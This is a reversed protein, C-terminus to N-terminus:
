QCVHGRADVSRGRIQVRLTSAMLRKVEFAFNFASRSLFQAGSRTKCPRALFGFNAERVTLRRIDVQLRSKLGRRTTHEGPGQGTWSATKPADIRRRSRPRNAIRFDLDIACGLLFLCAIRTTSRKTRDCARSSTELWNSSPLLFQVHSAFMCYLSHRHVEFEM